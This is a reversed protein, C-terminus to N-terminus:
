PTPKRPPQFNIPITFSVDVPLGNQRGPNWPGLDNIVRLAEEDFPSGLGKIITPEQVLGNKDIFFRIIVRGVITHGAPYRLNQMIATIIAENGGNKYVPMQEVVRYVKTNSIAQHQVSDQVQALAEQRTLGLGCVLVLALLFRRLKPRLRVVPMLQEPSFRGCVRGDPSAARAQELDSQSSTTFDQVLRDCLACHHGLAQPTLHQEAVPCPQIRVNLIPLNLM